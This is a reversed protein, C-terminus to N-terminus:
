RLHEMLAQVGFFGGRSFYHVELAEIQYPVGMHGLDDSLVSIRM